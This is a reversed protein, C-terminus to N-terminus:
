SIKSINSYSNKKKVLHKYNPSDKLSLYKNEEKKLNINKPTIFLSSNPEILNNRFSPVVSNSSLKDKNLKKFLKM